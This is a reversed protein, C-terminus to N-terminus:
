VGTIQMVMRVINMACFQLDGLSITYGDIEEHNRVARIIDEVNEECGPMQLDNGAYICGVSSSIPYKVKHDGTLGTMHQSTYWDTMIAGEYGWEERMVIRLLDYSNATHVGNILNYSTMMAYPASERVAIEFGRLYIERLARESIHANTFYRNAEQNNAAFHKITVGKGRHSQVGRTIAAACKGSILPDESYYEFNRGCLPNRHINLAPALWLDIHFKEMESGVMDGAEELLEMNWSQALAWGIPIATCYQYYDMVDEEDLDEPFPVKYDGVVNGGPLLEGAKTTKFHPQLRLGAPGDAMIVQGIKRSDKLLGSTDGAAGPICASAAGVVSETQTHMRFTGVCLNALEEVSLQAVLERISCKGMRVDDLTLHEERHDEFSERSDFRMGTFIPHLKEIVTEEAIFIEKALRTNVSSNGVHIQYNGAELVWASRSEDYAAMDRVAFSLYIVESEGPALEKTKAFAALEQYPKDLRGEPASYYVQVVEKGYYATGINTVLVELSVQEEDTEVKKVDLSFDTYSMGYGFSYLPHIRQTDFYRYGVYIGESYYEDDLEGDNHSFTESSPYQMYDCAWTDTLKGSPVKRGLLIDALVNGGINGLQSMLLIADIGEIEKMESLDLVGGVNLVVIVHKYYMCLDRLNDLEEEFLLYDGREYFRDAAEGSNRAIVYIATDTKSHRVDDEDISVPPIMKMPHLLSVRIESMQKEAAQESIWCLYDDKEFEYKCDYRTLWDGTTVDFGAAKLGDEITVIMRSNVDGSGTGGKITRRAGTGYLAVKGTKQLPLVGHNELLVVCEGALQKAFEMHELEDISIEESPTAYIDRKNKMIM